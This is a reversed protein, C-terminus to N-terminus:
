KYLLMKPHKENIKIIISYAHNLKIILPLNNKLSFIFAAMKRVHESMYVLENSLYM